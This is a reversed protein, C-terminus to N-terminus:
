PKEELFGRQVADRILSQAYDWLEPAGESMHQNYSLVKDVTVGHQRWARGATHYNHLIPQLRDLAAVFRAEATTRAEFEEWVQRLEQGLDDPLLAFIRDAAAEERQGKDIAGRADYVFTDGADIEVLDHVLAMQVARALDLGQDVAYERFLLVMVALHWSHEASNESRTGDTLWTRRQVTKLKDIELVFRVQRALRETVM